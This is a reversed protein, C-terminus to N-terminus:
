LLGKKRLMAVDPAGDFCGPPVEISRPEGTGTRVYVATPVFVGFRGGEKEIKFVGGVVDITEPDVSGGGSDLCCRVAQEVRSYFYNRIRPYMYYRVTVSAPALRLRELQDPFDRAPHECVIVTGSFRKELYDETLLSADDLDFYRGDWTLAVAKMDFLRYCTSLNLRYRNAVRWRYLVGPESKGAQFRDRYMAAYDRAAVRVADVREQTPPDLSPQKPVAAVSERVQGSRKKVEVASAHFAEAEDRVVTGKRRTTVAQALVDDPVPAPTEAQMVQLQAESRELATEAQQLQRKQAANEQEAQALAAERAAIEDAAARAAADRRSLEEQLTEKERAATEQITRAQALEEAAKEKLQSVEAKLADIEERAQQLESSDAPEGQAPEPNEQEKQEPPPAYTQEAPEAPDAPETAPETAPPRPEPQPQPAEPEPPQPQPEPANERPTAKFLHTVRVVAQEAPKKVQVVIAMVAIALLVVMIGVPVARLNGDRDYVVRGFLTRVGKRNYFVM